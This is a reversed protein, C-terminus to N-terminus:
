SPASREEGRKQRAEKRPPEALKPATAESCYSRFLLKPVTAGSRYSRFLLELNVRSLAKLKEDRGLIEFGGSLLVRGGHSTVGYGEYFFSIGEGESPGCFCGEESGGEGPARVGGCDV